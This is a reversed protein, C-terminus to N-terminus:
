SAALLVVLRNLSLDWGEAHGTAEAEDALDRHTLRLRTTGDETRDVEVLVVSVAAPDHDWTWTFELTTPPDVVLYRGRATHAGGMVVAYEAGAAVEGTFEVPLAPNPCYWRTLLDPDHWARFVEEPSSHFHRVLTPTATM